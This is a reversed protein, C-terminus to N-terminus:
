VPPEGTVGTGPEAVEVKPLVPSKAPSPEARIWIGLADFSGSWPQGVGAGHQIKAGAIEVAVVGANELSLSFAGKVRLKWPESTRLIQIHEQGDEALIRAECTDSARLSILVGDSTIPPEPFVEGLVPYKQDSDPKRWIAHDASQAQPGNEATRSIDKAPILLWGLMAVVGITMTVMIAKESRPNMPSTNSEFLADLSSELGVYKEFDIGLREAMLMALAYEESYNESTWEGAEVSKVVDVSVNLEEAIKERGLGMARRKDQIENQLRTVNPPNM